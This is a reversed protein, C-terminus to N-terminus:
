TNEKNETYPRKTDAPPEVPAGSRGSSPGNKQTQDPQDDSRKDPAPTGAPTQGQNELPRNPTRASLSKNTDGATTTLGTEGRTTDSQGASSKDTSDKNDAQKADDPGPGADGSPEDNQTDDSPDNALREPAEEVPTEAPMVPLKDPQTERRTGTTVPNGGGGGGGGCATLLLAVVMPSAIGSALLRTPHAPVGGNSDNTARQESMPERSIRATM